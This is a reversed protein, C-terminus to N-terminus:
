PPAARGAQRLEFEISVSVSSVAGNTTAENRAFRFNRSNGGSVSVTCAEAGSRAIIKSAIAKVEDPSLMM